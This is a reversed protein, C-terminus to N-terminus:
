GAAPLMTCHPAAYRLAAAERGSTFIYYMCTASRTRREGCKDDERERGQSTLGIMAAAADHRGGVSWLGFRRGTAEALRDSSVLAM